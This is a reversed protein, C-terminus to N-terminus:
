IEERGKDSVLIGNLHDIEHQITFATIKTRTKFIFAKGDRDVADVVITKFRPVGFSKGPVSLCREGHHTVRDKRVLIKPNVFVLFDDSTKDMRMVFLKKSVGIQPAALGLANLDQATSIMDDILKSFEPTILEENTVDTAVAKLTQDPITRIKM